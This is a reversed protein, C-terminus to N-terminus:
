LLYPQVLAWVRAAITQLTASSKMHLWYSGPNEEDAALDSLDLGSAFNGGLLWLAAIAGNYNTRDYVPTGGTGKILQVKWWAIKGGFDTNFQSTITSLNSQTTALAMAAIIDNEGLGGIVIGSHGNTKAGQIIAKARNYANRNAAMPLVTSNQLTASNSLWDTSSTGGLGANIFACPLGKAAMYSTAFLPWFAGCAANLDSWGTTNTSKAFASSKLTAHTYTQFSSGQENTNSQGILIFVDGIGVTSVTKSDSAKNVRRVTLTGQGATQGTLTWSFPDGNKLNTAVQAYAGGNFSAEMPGTDAGHYVGDILISGTTATLRQFVHFPRPTIITLAFGEIPVRSRWAPHFYM